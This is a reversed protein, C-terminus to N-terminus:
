VYSSFESMLPENYDEEVARPPTVVLLAWLICTASLVGFAACIALLAYNALLASAIFLAYSAFAFLIQLAAVGRPMEEYFHPCRVAVGATLFTYSLVIAGVALLALANLDQDHM